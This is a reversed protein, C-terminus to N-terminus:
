WEILLLRNLCDEGCGKEGRDIEEQTLFCDCTMKKAEKCSIRETLYQNEKLHVFQKLRSTVEEEEKIKELATNFETIQPSSRNSVSPSSSASMELESSRRWRSKVKVPRTENTESPPHFSDPALPPKESDTHASNSNESSESDVTKSKVVGLGKTRQKLVSISKIRSSRRVTEDRTVEAKQSTAKGKKLKAKGKAVKVTVKKPKKPKQKPKKKDTEDETTLDEEEVSEKGKVDGQKSNEETEETTEEAVVASDQELSVSDDCETIDVNGGIVMESLEDIIVANVDLNTMQESLELEESPDDTYDMNEEPQVIVVSGTVTASKETKEKKSEKDENYDANSNEELLCRFKGFKKHQRSSSKAKNEPEVSGKSEPVSIPPEEAVPEPEKVVPVTKKAATKSKAVRKKRPAM